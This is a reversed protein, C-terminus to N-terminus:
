IACPTGNYAVVYNWAANYKKVHTIDIEAKIHDRYKLVNM